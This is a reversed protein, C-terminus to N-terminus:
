MNQVQTQQPGVQSERNSPAVSSRYDASVAGEVAEVVMEDNSSRQSAEVSELKEELM